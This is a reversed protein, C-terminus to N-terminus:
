VLARDDDGLFENCTYNTTIALTNPNPDDFFRRKLWHKENWPNFTLTIQKFYGEPLEGRISMDVKDFDDENTIQYCEEFWAWCLYGTDVTISTIKLPDDLGRFLIKQGTPTFRIELPSLKFEWLHSVGLQNAAWKLQAYTSDKQTDQVKRVVLTNALPYKMMRYIINLATTTSKKSGRGGKAVRYRGKFNWFEKYGRGVVKNLSIKTMLIMWLRLTCSGEIQHKETWMAYRKGLLEAAKTRDKISPTNDVLEFWDKGSVPIKETVEGRVVKTLFILVENQSAIQEQDKELIREDIYKKIDKNAMLRASNANAGREKYGAKIYADTANGSQIYHDAFRKQKETLKM